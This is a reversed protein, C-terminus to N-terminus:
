IEASVITKKRRRTQALFTPFFRGFTPFLLFDARLALFEPFGTLFLFNPRSAGFITPFDPPFLLFDFSFRSVLAFVAFFIAQPARIVKM